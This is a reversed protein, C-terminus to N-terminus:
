NRLYKKLLENLEKVNIPKSLYANFGEKLYKEKVGVIADATLVVVPTDFNNIKKLEHLTAIGDMDAMMQDLLILDFKKGEDILRICQRGSDVCEVNVEYPKLLRSAVKLNLKNDDVILISKDKASFFDAQKKEVIYEEIDGIAQDDIIKQTITVTFTSGQGVESEVIIQGNLSDILKQAISLGMHKNSVADENNPTTDFLKALKERDIGCGTDSIAISLNVNSQKREGKAMVTISGKETYDVANNLINLLIQRLKGNDGFLKTPLDKDINLKLKINKKGIRELTISTLDKFFKPVNYEVERKEFIGSEIKSIDLFGDIIDLLNNSASNINEVDERAAEPLEESLASESLGIIANMPTRIEHSMITLFKSKADNARKADELANQLLINQKRMYEANETVNKTLITAYAEGKSVTFFVTSELWLVDETETLRYRISFPETKEQATLKTFNSLDLTTLVIDRDDIYVYEKVINNIEDQYNGERVSGFYHANEKLNSLSFDGSVLNVNMEVDYSSSTIQDLKKERMKIDSAQIILMHQREYEKTVDSVLIVEYSSRKETFSYINIKIWKSATEPHIPHRYFVMQSVFESKRDWKRFEEKIIPIELMNNILQMGDEDSQIGDIGLVEGVNETMYILKNNKIDCMFYVTNSDKVLSNFLKDKYRLEKTKKRGHFYTNIYFIAIVFLVVIIGIALKDPLIDTNFDVYNLFLFMLVGLVIILLFLIIKKIQHKM